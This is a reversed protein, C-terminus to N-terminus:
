GNYVGGLTLILKPYKVEVSKVKWNTSMFNVYKISHFNQNAYPDSVINLENAINIDDSIKDSVTQINKTNRILEGYYEREIITQKWVGDGVNKSEAFGIKGFWKAM